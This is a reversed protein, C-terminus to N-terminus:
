QIDGNWIALFRNKLHDTLVTDLQLTLLTKKGIFDYIPKPDIKLWSSVNTQNLGAETCFADFAKYLSLICSAQDNYAALYKMSTEDIEHAAMFGSFLIMKHYYSNHLAEFKAAIFAIHELKSTYEHDLMTYQMRKCTRKLRDVEHLDNRALAAITLDFRETSTLQHYNIENLKTM